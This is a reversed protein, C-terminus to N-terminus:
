QFPSMDADVADADQAAYSHKYGSMSTAHPATAQPGPQAGFNNFRRRPDEM